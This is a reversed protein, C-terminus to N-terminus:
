ASLIMVFNNLEEPNVRGLQRDTQQWTSLDSRKRKNEWCLLHLLANIAAVLAIACNTLLIACLLLLLLVISLLLVFHLKSYYWSESTTCECNILILHRKYSAKYWSM